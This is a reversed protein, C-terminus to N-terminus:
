LNRSLIVIVKGALGVRHGGRITIFGQRIEDEYAYLSYNSIYELTDRIDIPSVIYSEKLSTGIVGNLGIFYEKNDYVIILPENARLRIEQLKDFELDANDMVKKLRSSLIKLLEDRRDM